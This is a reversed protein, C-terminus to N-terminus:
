KLYTNKLDYWLVVSEDEPSIASSDGAEGSLDADYRAKLDSATLAKSYLRTAALDGRLKRGTHEECIGIGLNFGNTRISASVNTSGILKGNLYVSLKSGNYTGAIHIWENTRLDASSANVAHWGGDYIFFEIGGDKTQLSAQTDGKAMIVNYSDINSLKVWAEMTFEKKGTLTKNIVNKDPTYFYGSMSYGFPSTVDASINVTDPIAVDLGNTSQDKIFAKADKLSEIKNEAATLVDLNTVLSKQTESLKDYERRATSIDAKQAYYMVDRVKEILANVRDAEGQNFSDADFEEVDRWVKSREILADPSTTKEYPVITYSYSYNNSGPLRYQDLPGPGCSTNGLGRSICDISLSTYDTIPLRFPHTKNSLDRTSFHLAGAEMMSDSVVMLGIPESASELAIFRVDTHGGCAQPTMFPFFSDTVTSNFLGVTAGDKRDRFTELPGNGYWIINEYSHPLTLEAGFRLMEGMGATPTLESNVNVEGSGYIVYKTTQISNNARTLKHVVTITITKNDSSVVMDFASVTMGRNANEWKGDMDRDNDVRARWYNPTPGATLLTSDDYKYETMLGTSRDFSLSFKDSSITILDGNESKTLSPIASVEIAPVNSVKAPLQLQGVSVVYGAKAYLADTKLKAYVNLFYEGDPKLTGPMEFPVTVTKRQGPEVNESITGSSVVKGDELVEWELSYFDTNLFNHENYIEIKNELLSNIDASFWIPQHQFKVEQIEPQPTRDNSVLGNQSFSGSNITDGWNGGYGFYKGVMDDRGISAYYDWYTRTASSPIPTAIAQDAWDWIFGGLINSRSRYSEWYERLNGVANGMAHAYECQMYPMNDARDARANVDGIGAYMNSAVDVGGGYYLAEYHVPRTPDIPRVVEQISRQFMRTSPTNGSENGLSWMVVSTTNKRAELNANLRDLYVNTFLNAMRDSEGAMCHSEMNTEAIMFLGYKDCLYYFYADNPYHATRVSNINNLKMLEVDRQMLEPSIYRGTLASTDHRNVGKFVLPKGNITIDQYETAVKDFIANVNTKTFSIERFGLQQSISEFHKGSEKDYLSIVLTYLYPDEDSWLHPKTIQRSLNLSGEAGSEISPVDVRLPDGRLAYKGDKDYLQIDIGYSDALATSNNVIELNLKLEADTFTDDLDTEVKYNRVHVAPTAFLYVDRFIGALRMFDQDELFSGDCWRHVRVALLNDKGDENLFPTIDFEHADFSNETYGVEHGNIYLYMASEVGQFCIYVKKGHKLWDADVDFNRRYFGVPNTVKPALPALSTYQGPNGYAGPWPLDVNTYIPFDFGQTQWSAPLEVSKWGCGYDADKYSTVENKGTYPNESVGTYDKKFFENSIGAEEALAPSKYVTLDWNQGKGTLLQYYPSKEPQYNVAGEIANQVSDYPLINQSHPKERNIGVVDAQKVPNGDIDVSQVEGTWENHTFYTQDKELKNLATLDPWQASDSWPADPPKIDDNNGPLIIMAIIGGILCVSIGTCLYVIWKKKKM